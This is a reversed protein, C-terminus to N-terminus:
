ISHNHLKRYTAIEGELRKNIAVQNEYQHKLEKKREVMTNLRGDMIKLQIQLDRIIDDKNNIRERRWTWYANMSTFTVLSVTGIIEILNM